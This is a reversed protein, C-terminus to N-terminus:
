STIRKPSSGLVGVNFTNHEVLQALPDTAADFGNGAHWALCRVVRHRTGVRICLYHIIHLVCAFSSTKQTMVDVVVAKPCRAAASFVFRFVITPCEEARYSYRGSAWSSFHKFFYRLFNQPYPNKHVKTGSLFCCDNCLRRHSHRLPRTGRLPCEIANSAHVASGPLRVHVVLSTSSCM